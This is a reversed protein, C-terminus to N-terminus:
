DGAGKSVSVKDGSGLTLAGRTVVQDGAAVGSTVEVATAGVAGLKLQRREVQDGKVVFVDATQQEVDWNLLAERVVQLVGPRTAVVIRGKVFSGGRLQGSPNAVEAIVKASRSAPDISPNIFAVNGSFTQGPIADTTFELRQGIRVRSLRSSPVTVTLDLQRNDVIRFAPDGGGMNELRDGVSIGRFAVVGDMPSLMVGKALRSQATKVQANAATVAAAAAEVASKAEDFAQPTILGFEKLSVARDLERKARTEAVVAQAVAAKLAEITAETESTDLQALKQGKKVPVWETVFVASVTGTVESKIETQFKPTLSGVVEVNEQLESATVPAVTVAVPARTAAPAPQAPTQGGGCGTAAIVALAPLARRVIWRVKRVM